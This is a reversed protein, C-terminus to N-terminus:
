AVFLNDQGTPPGGKGVSGAFTSVHGLRGAGGGGAAAPAPTASAGSCTTAEYKARQVNFRCEFTVTSGQVLAQGDTLQNRHVFVDPGGTSPTVFGFGKEEIWAKVMGTMLQGQPLEAGTTQSPVAPAAAHAAASLAAAGGWASQLSPVSQLAALTAMDM